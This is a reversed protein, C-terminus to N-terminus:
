SATQLVGEKLISYTIGNVTASKGKVAKAATTPGLVQYKLVVGRPVYVVLPTKSSYPILKRRSFNIYQATKAGSKTSVAKEKAVLKGMVVEYYKLKTNKVTKEAYSGNISYNAASDVYKILKALISIQIKNEDARKELNLVYRTQDAPAAPFSSILKKVAM